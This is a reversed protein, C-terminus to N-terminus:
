FNCFATAPPTFNATYRAVNSIRLEDIFGTSFYYAGTNFGVYLTGDLINGAWAPTGTMTQSVGDLYLAWTGSQRVWAWHHWANLVPTQASTANPSNFNAMEMNGGTLVSYYWAMHVGDALITSAPISTWNIWAELTVDTTAGIATAAKAYSSAGGQYSNSGFKATAGTFTSTGTITLTKSNASSDSGDGDFHYLAVTNSFNGGGDTNPACPPTPATTGTVYSIIVIGNGGKAGGISTTTSTSAGAGGGLGDTGPTGLNNPV